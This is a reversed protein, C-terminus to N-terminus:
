NMIQDGRHQHLTLPLKQLKVAFCRQLMLLHPSTKFVNLFSIAGYLKDPMISSNLIEAIRFENSFINKLLRMSHDLELILM